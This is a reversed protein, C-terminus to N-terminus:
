APLGFRSEKIQLTNLDVYMLAYVTWGRFNENESNNDKFGAFFQYTDDNVMGASMCIHGNHKKVYSPGMEKILKENCLMFAKKESFM